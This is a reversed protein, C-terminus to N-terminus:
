HSPKRQTRMLQFTKCILFHTSPRVQLATAAADTDRSRDISTLAKTNEQGIWWSFGGSPSKVLPMKVYETSSTLQGLSGEGVMLIDNSNNASQVYNFSEGANGPVLWKRFRGGDNINATPTDDERTIYSASMEAPDLPDVNKGDELGEGLSNWVGVLNRREIPSSDVDLIQSDATIRRDSGANVQLEGLALMLAMRANAKAEEVAQTHNSSRLEITSLSLMALAIMVLLVMVSITAILAFGQSSAHLPHVKPQNSLTVTKYPILIEPPRGYRKTLRHATQRRFFVRENLLVGGSLHKKIIKKLHFANM